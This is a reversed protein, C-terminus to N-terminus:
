KIFIDTPRFTFAGLEEGFMNEIPVRVSGDNIVIKMVKDAM